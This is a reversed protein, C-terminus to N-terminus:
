RFLLYGALVVPVAAIIALLGFLEVAGAYTLLIGAAAGGASGIGFIGLYTFGYSIGRSDPPTYEAVTAQYLPQVLFLFFGLIAGVILFIWLAGQGAPIFILSVVTLALFGILLGIETRIRDTLLGGVYQGIVGILLIGVYFYNGPELEEAGIQIPEFRPFDSVIEPLFTLVGRYYLGSFMVMVFVIVFASAFLRKSDGLMERFTRLERDIGGDSRAPVAATEDLNVRLALIGAVFAPITLITVVVRWDFALLLLATVLPGIAIGVNGAMGHYAFGRGRESVGTSILTLGAPHYVSAAIGWLLLAVTVAWIGPAVSLALFSGGMGLLCVAILRRSGIADTLWGAPLAGIGFLAYGIAVVIGVVAPTTDFYVLWIPVLIPISLEFTHVLSHGTM